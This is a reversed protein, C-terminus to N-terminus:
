IWEKKKVSKDQWKRKMNTVLKKETRPTCAKQSEHCKRM